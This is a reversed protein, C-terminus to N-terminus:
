INEDEDGIPKAYNVKMLCLGCAPAVPKALGVHKAKLINNFEGVGVKNSGVKTLLGVTSRVQHTLFANAKMNIIILDELEYVKTEYMCRITSKGKENSPCFSIFDHVGELLKCAENMATVDFKGPLYWAYREYFPSRYERRLIRYQYERSVADRRVDFSDDVKYTNKVAIDKPLYHNLGKTVTSNEYEKKVWFSVVQCKAHVGADTRSAARLRSSNGFLKEVASEVEGQITSVGAQWQSGHYGTGDYELILVHKVFDV